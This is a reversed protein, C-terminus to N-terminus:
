HGTATRLVRIAAKAMVGSGCAEVGRLAVGDLVAVAREEHEGARAGALRADDGVADGPEDLAADRGCAMTASVKVFLAAPSIRSRTACSARCPARRARARASVTDM